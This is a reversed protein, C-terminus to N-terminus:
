EGDTCGIHIFRFFSACLTPWFWLAECGPGLSLPTRTLAEGHASVPGYVADPHTALMEDLTGSRGTVGRTRRPPNWATLRSDPHMRVLM